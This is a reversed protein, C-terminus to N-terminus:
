GSKRSISNRSLGIDVPTLLRDCPRHLQPRLLRRSGGELGDRFFAARRQGSLLLATALNISDPSQRGRLEVFHSVYNSQAAAFRSHRLSLMAAFSPPGSTRAPLLPV